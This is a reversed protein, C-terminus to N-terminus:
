LFAQLGQKVKYIRRLKAIDAVRILTLTNCHCQDHPALLSKRHGRLQTSAPNFSHRNAMTEQSEPMPKIVVVM